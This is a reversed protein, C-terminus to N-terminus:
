NDISSFRGSQHQTIDEMEAIREKEEEVSLVDDFSRSSKVFGTSPESNTASSRHSQRRKEERRQRYASIYEPRADSDTLIVGGHYSTDLGVIEELPDARFWGMWDLWIFFPMMISFTWGMIFLISILQAGLLTADGSGRGWSYCWGVHEERGYAALLRRPSAFLGM